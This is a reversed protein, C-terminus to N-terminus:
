GRRMIEGGATSDGWGSIRRNASENDIRKCGGGGRDGGGDVWVVSVRDSRDGWGDV